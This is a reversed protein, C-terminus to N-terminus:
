FISVYVGGAFLPNRKLVMLKIKFLGQSLYTPLQSKRFLRCKQGEGLAGTFPLYYLAFELIFRFETRQQRWKDLFIFIVGNV